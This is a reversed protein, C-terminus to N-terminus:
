PTVRILVVAHAPVDATYSGQLRGVDRHTWLDRVTAQLGATYGIEPWAVAIPAASESRNLLAVARSGDALEKAWVEVDGDDRVKRGQRGLPDQDM